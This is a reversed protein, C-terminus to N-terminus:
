PRFAKTFSVVFGADNTFLLDVGRSLERYLVSRSSIFGTGVHQGADLHRRIQKDGLILYHGTLGAMREELVLRSVREPDFEAVPLLSDRTAFECRLLLEPDLSMLHYDVRPRFDKLADALRNLRKKSWEVESRKLEILLHLQGRFRQLVERLTPVRAFRKRLTEFPHDELLHDEGFTRLCSKDHHVVPEDDKTWRIDFEIGWAGVAVARDFAEMTNELCERDHVGRHAIVRARRFADPIPRSRPILKMVGDATAM